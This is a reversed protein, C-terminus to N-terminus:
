YAIETYKLLIAHLFSWGSGRDVPLEISMKQECNLVNEGLPCIRTTEM